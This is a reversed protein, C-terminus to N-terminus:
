CPSSKKNRLGDRFLKQVNERQLLGSGNSFSMANLTKSPRCCYTTLTLTANVCTGPGLTGLLVNGLAEHQRRQSTKKGYHMLVKEEEPLHQVNVHGHVHHIFFHLENSLSGEAM